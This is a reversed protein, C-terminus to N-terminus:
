PANLAAPHETDPRAARQALPQDASALHLLPSQHARVQDHQSVGARQPVTAPGLSATAPLRRPDHPHQVSRDTPRETLARAKFHGVYVPDFRIITTFLRIDAETLRDGILYRKGGDLIKELRDLSKFLQSCAKEYPEQKVAFGSQATLRILAPPCRAKYVGAFDAPDQTARWAGNNVDNYVWDNLEDIEKRLEEPSYTMDAFKSDILEDFAPNM